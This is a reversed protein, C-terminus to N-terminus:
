LTFGLFLFLHRVQVHTFWHNVCSRSSKSCWDRTMPGWSHFINSRPVRPSSACTQSTFRLRTRTARSFRTALFIATIQQFVDCIIKSALMFASIFLRDGSSGKAAPFRAKLCQMLYLAAFLPRSTSACGSFPMPSLITWDLSRLRRLRHWLLPCMQAHLSTLSLAPVFSSQQKTDMIRIAEVRGRRRIPYSLALTLSRSGSVLQPDRLNPLGAVDLPRRQAAVGLLPVDGTGNPQDGLPCYFPGILPDSDDFATASSPPPV